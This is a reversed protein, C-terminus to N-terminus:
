VWYATRTMVRAARRMTCRVVGPVPAGGAAQAKGGHRVEDDRMSTVLDRSTEDTPPLRDLHSDLHAEVQRETETVFGLSMRDGPLAALVGISVSGLYWLPALRSPRAGLQALRQACASLHQAEDRAAADLLHRTAASRALLAQGTYLGQAALEGAHNVRMLAAAHRKEGPSLHQDSDSPTTDPGAAAPMVGRLAGDLRSILRDIRTQNRM